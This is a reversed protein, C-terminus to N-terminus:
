SSLPSKRESSHLSRIALVLYAPHALRPSQPGLPCCWPRAPCPARQPAGSDCTWAPRGESLPQREWPLSPRCLGASSGEEM